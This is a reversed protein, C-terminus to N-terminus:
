EDWISEVSTNCKRHIGNAFQGFHWEIENENIIPIAKKCKSCWYGVRNGERGSEKFNIKKPLENLKM